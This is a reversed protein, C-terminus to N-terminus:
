TRRRRDRFFRRMWIASLATAGLALASPEPVGSAASDTTITMTISKNDNFYSNLGADIQFDLTEGAAPVFAQTYNAPPSGAALSQAFLSTTGRFISIAANNPHTDSNGFLAEIAYTGSVPATFRVVALEGAQGPHFSVGGAPVIGTGFIVTTATPNRAIQPLSGFPPASPLYWFDVGSSNVRNVFPTFAAGSSTKYGYSWVGNPNNTASFDAALNYIIPVAQVKQGLSFIVILMTMSFTTSNM